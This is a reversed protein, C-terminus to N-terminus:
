VARKVEFFRRLYYVQWISMAVLMLAEFISWWMVRANTSETTNRHAMERIRMYDQEAQIANVGEALQTISQELPTIDDKKALDKGTSEGVNVLFSVTKPTLTSMRNSFCFSYIGTTYTNFTYKGESERTGEYIVRHDPAQIRLDIDLFGGATVQFMVNVPAGQPIDEYYCEEKTADVNILFANTLSNTLFCLGFLVLLSAGCKPAM